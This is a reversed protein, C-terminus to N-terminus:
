CVPKEATRGGLLRRSEGQWLWLGGVRVANHIQERGTGRAIAPEGKPADVPTVMDGTAAELGKQAM